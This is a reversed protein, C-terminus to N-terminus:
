TLRRDTPLCCEGLWGEEGFELAVEYDQGGKVVARYLHGPEVCELETVHGWLFYERGKQVTKAPLMDLFPEVGELLHEPVQM